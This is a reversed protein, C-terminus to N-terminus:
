PLLEYAPLTLFDVFEDSLAVLEFLERAEEYRSPNYSEGLAARIKDLEEVILRQVLGPTVLEGSTLVVGNHAWQWIQSRAIEATAVDEMLSFIAVAGSGQLWAALYQLAVSM